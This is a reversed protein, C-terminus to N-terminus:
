EQSNQQISDGRTPIGYREQMLKKYLEERDKNIQEQIIIQNTELTM